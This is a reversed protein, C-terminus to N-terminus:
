VQIQTNTADLSSILFGGTFAVIFAPICIMLSRCPFPSQIRSDDDIVESTSINRNDEGGARVELSHSLQQQPAKESIM